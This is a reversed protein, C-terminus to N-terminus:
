KRGTVANHQPSSPKKKPAMDRLIQRESMAAGKITKTLDEKISKTLDDKISSTLNDIASIQDKAGRYAQYTVITYASTVLILIVTFAALILTARVMRKQQIITEKALRVEFAAKAAIRDRSGPGGAKLAQEIKDWGSTSMIQTSM